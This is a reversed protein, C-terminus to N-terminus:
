FEGSNYARRVEELAQELKAPTRDAPNTKAQWEGYATAMRRKLETQRTKAQMQQEDETMPAIGNLNGQLEEVLKNRKNEDPEIDALLVAGMLNAEIPTFEGSSLRGPLEGLLAKAAAQRRKADKIEDLTQWAEFTHQYRLYGVIREAEQKPQGLKTIVANLTDWDESQVDAPRGDALMQVKLSAALDDTGVGPQVWGAGSAANDALVVGSQEGSSGSFWYIAGAVGAVVAVAAAIQWSKSRQYTIM